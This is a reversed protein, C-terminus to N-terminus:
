GIDKENISLIDFLASVNRVVKESHGAGLKRDMYRLISLKNLTYEFLNFVLIERYANDSIDCPLKKRHYALVDLVEDGTMGDMVTSLLEIMDHEPNGYCALEWDYIMVDGSGVSINRNTLDNHTLTRHSFTCTFKTDIIDAFRNIMATKKEGFIRMNEAGLNNFLKKMSKKCRRYDKVTYSNLCLKNVASEDNYYRGHVESIVDTIGYVDAKTPPAIVPIRSLAMFSSKGVMNEYSGLLVPMHERIDGCIGNYIVSERLWSKNFSYVNHSMVLSLALIPDGDALVGIGKAIILGSKKKGVFEVDRGDDFRVNYRFINGKKALIRTAISMDSEPPSATMTLPDKKFIKKIIHKKMIAINGM